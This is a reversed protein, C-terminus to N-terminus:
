RSMCANATTIAQYTAPDSVHVCQGAPSKAAVSIISTHVKGSGATGAFRGTGHSITFRGRGTQTFLCTGPDGSGTGSKWSM